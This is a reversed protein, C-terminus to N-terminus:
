RLCPTCHFTYFPGWKDVKWTKFHTIAPDNGLSWAIGPKGTGPRDMAPTSANVTTTNPIADAVTALTPVLVFPVMAALYAILLDFLNTM